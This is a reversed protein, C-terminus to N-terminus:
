RYGYTGYILNPVPEFDGNLIFRCNKLPRSHISVIQSPEQPPSFAFRPPETLVPCYCIFDQLMGPAHVTWFWFWKEDYEGRFPWIGTQSGRVPQLISTVAGHVVAHQIRSDHGVYDYHRSKLQAWQIHRIAEPTVQDPLGSARTEQPPPAPLNDGIWLKRKPM